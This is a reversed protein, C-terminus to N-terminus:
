YPDHLVRIVDFTRPNVEYVICDFKMVAKDIADDISWQNHVADESIDTSYQREDLFLYASYYGEEGIEQIHWSPFEMDRHILHVEAGVDM